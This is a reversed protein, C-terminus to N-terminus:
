SQAPPVGSELVDRPREAAVMRTVEDLNGADQVRRWKEVLKGEHEHRYVPVGSGCSNSTLEVDVVFAQRIIAESDINMAELLAAFEGDAPLVSRGRGFLRVTYATGELDCFLLTIRDSELLHEATENGSGPYDVWAVRRDDLIRFCDHGRPSVMIPGLPGATAVFFVKQSTITERQEDTIRHEFPRQQAM